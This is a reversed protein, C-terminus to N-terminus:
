ELEGVHFGGFGWFGRFVEGYLPVGKWRENAGWVFGCGGMLAGGGGGGGYSGMVEWSSVTAHHETHTTTPQADPRTVFGFARGGCHRKWAAGQCM